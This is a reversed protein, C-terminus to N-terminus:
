LNVNVKTGISGPDSASDVVQTGISTSMKGDCHRHMRANRPKSAVAVQALLRVDKTDDYVKKIRSRGTGGRPAAPPTIRAPLWPRAPSKFVGGEQGRQTLERATDMSSRPSPSPPYSIYAIRAPSAAVALISPSLSYREACFLQQQNSDPNHVSCVMIKMSLLGRLVRWSPAGWVANHHHHTPPEGLAAARRGTLALLRTAATPM